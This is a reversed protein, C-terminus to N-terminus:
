EKIIVMKRTASHTGSTLTYFVLGSAPLDAAHLWMQNYGAEFYGRQEKIVKGGADHIRLTFFDDEPLRFGIMTQSNFPNPQNQYLEFREEKQQAREFQLAVDLLAGQPDYAEARAYRSNVALAQEIKGGTKPKFSLWFLAEGEVSPDAGNAVNNGQRNWSVTIIGRDVMSTGVHEAGIVGYVVDLFELKDADFEVTMQFGDIGQWNRATIPVTLEENQVMDLAESYLTFTGAVSRDEVQNANLIANGNVDGIKIAIFNRGNLNGQLNGVQILEPFPTQWPNAENPFVFDADVFRWSTNGQFSTTLGLILRRLQIIDLTSISKSNNVDAAILKYPSDLLQTGLIHRTILIVDFTSVGNIANLDCVPTVTYSEGGPLDEAEYQGDAETQISQTMYGSLNVDVSQVPNGNESFIGGAIAGMATSGGCNVGTNAQVIVFTQCFGFNAGGLTGNPQVRRPNNASDWAYIEIINTGLNDCTLVLATQNPSPIQGARNISVRVPGSCDAPIPSGVFDVAQLTVAGRDFDGDGDADTNPPLPMLVATMGAACTPAPGVCDIVVFPITISNTNGCGDRLNVVFRHSGIPFTGTVLYSPYSGSIGAGTIESDNVGDSFLDAFVRVIVDNPSCGENVTFNASVLATCATGVTCATDPAAFTATPRTTDFVKIVQTYQWYGNSQVTRWYGTPNSPSGCATGRTNAAPINDTHNNNRDIYIQNPRRLVWVHEDGGANDCDEDRNVVVPQDSGNYECWNIIRYTRFIKFCAGESATFRENTVSVAMNSCGAAQVILTDTEPLGCEAEADKPFRISYNHVLNITIIQQCTNSSTNGSADRARFRRVITGNGCDAINVIPNLEEAYAGNCNDVAIPAGFMNRLMLTDTPSFGQPLSDCAISRAPPAMCVPRTNDSVTLESVCVNTNGSLDTVRLEIIVMRGVDCCTLDVSPGWNSYYPTVNLCTEPDRDYRRRVEITAIGCNDNSGENVDQAFVRGFSNSGIAVILNDDCIATPQVDDVVSFPCDVQSMNGRADTAIYRFRHTGIPLGSVIPTQGPRITDRPVLQTNYGLIVGQPSLIPVRVESIIVTMYTVNSCNDTIVPPMVQVVATCETDGTSFVPPDPTGDGNQDIGVPCSIIPPSFDDVRIVQNYTTFEGPVCDNFVTWRRLFTYVNPNNDNLVRPEDQWTASLNCFVPNIYYIGFATEIYPYGTGSPHPNGNPTTQYGTSCEIVTSLPPFKLDGIRPKRVTITQQCTRSNGSPDTATFTRTIVQPGCNGNNQRTDTFTVTVNNCNDVAIPSGTISLSRPNNFLSDTDNCVLDFTDQITTIPLNNLAGTFNTYINWSYAGLAGPQESSTLLTYTQNPVLNATLRMMSDPAMFMFLMSDRGMDVVNMCPFAPNFAGRYLVGVGRGFQPKLDFIYKNAATVTFTHLDYRHNGMAPNTQGRFCSFDSLAITPDAGSLTNSITQRNRTIVGTTAPPPCTINPNIEDEFTLFSEVEFLGNYSYTVARLTFGVWESGITDGIPNGPVDFVVVYFDDMCPYANLDSLTMSPTIVAFCQNNLPVNLFTIGAPWPVNSINVTQTITASCAPDSPNNVAGTGADFTYTITQSSGPPYISPDFETAVVGNVRFTGSGAVGAGANGQLPVPLSTICYQSNLGVIQPNPYHCAASLSVSESLNNTATLSFGVADVHRVILRYVGSGPATETFQAGAGIPFPAMPPAPSSVSFLGSATTITWTEGPNSAITLTDQFQGNVLNTANNLCNCPPTAGSVTGRYIIPPDTLFTWVAEFANTKLGASGLLVVSALLAPLMLKNLSAKTFITAHRM